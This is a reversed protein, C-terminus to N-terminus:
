PNEQLLPRLLEVLSARTIIGRNANLPSPHFSDVLGFPLGPLQHLRGNGFRFASRRLGPRRIAAYDLLADHAIHGFAVIWRLNPLAALDAQLWSGCGRREDPTPANLPPVCKVANTIAAGHLRLQLGGVEPEAHSSLGLDHLAGYLLRGSVDGCFPTGTRNAGHYGPAMGLLLIRADPDGFLPVPRSWYRASRLQNPGKVAHETRRFATLRSCQECGLLGAHCLRPGQWLDASQEASAGDPPLGGSREDPTSPKM